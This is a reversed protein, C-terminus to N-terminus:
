CVSIIGQLTFSINADLTNIRINNNVRMTPPFENLLIDGVHTCSTNIHRADM